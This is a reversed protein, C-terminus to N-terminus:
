VMPEPHGVQKRTHGGQLLRFGIDSRIFGFLSAVIAVLVGVTLARNYDVAVFVAGQGPEFQDRIATLEEPLPPATPLGYREALSVIDIVNIVPVGLKSFRPMVGDLEPPMRMPPRMNLGADFLKKGLSTGASVAGGGVNIYARIAQLGAEERMLRMREDVAGTFDNAIIMPLDCREIAAQIAVIGEPSLNKGSDEDGGISAALSRHEIIGQDYLLKEMDIWMFEPLNAGWQSAAGSSIILPTAGITEIATITCVNLAPFSGSLGVGVMDGEKVGARMLMDVLVAAFNPNASTQKSPLVGNVSTIVSMNIGILGTELPDYAPDIEKVKMRQKKIENFARDATETAAIKLDFYPQERDVRLREVMLMGVGSLLAILMLAPRSVAKPRWIVKKM